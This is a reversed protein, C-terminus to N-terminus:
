GAALIARCSMVWIKLDFSSDRQRGVLVAIQGLKALRDEYEVMVLRSAPDDMLRKWEAETYRIGYLNFQNTKNV